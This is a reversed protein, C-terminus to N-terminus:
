QIPIYRTYRVSSTNELKIYGPISDDAMTNMLVNLYAGYPYDMKATLAGHYQFQSTQKSPVNKGFKFSIADGGIQMPTDSLVIQHTCLQPSNSIATCHIDSSADIIEGARVPGLPLSIGVYRGNRLIKTTKINKRTSKGKSQIYSSEWGQSLVLVDLKTRANGPEMFVSPIGGPAIPRTENDRRPIVNRPAPGGVLKARLVLNFVNWSPNGILAAGQIVTVGHHEVYDTQSVDRGLSVGEISSGFSQLIDGAVKVVYRNEDKYRTSGKEPSRTAVDNTYGTGARLLVQDGSKLGQVQVSQILTPNSFLDVWKAASMEASATRILRGNDPVILPLRKEIFDQFKSPSQSIHSFTKNSEYGGCSQVYFCALLMVYIKNFKINISKNQM